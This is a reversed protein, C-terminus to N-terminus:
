GARLSLKGKISALSSPSLGTLALCATRPCVLAEGHRELQWRRQREAGGRGAKGAVETDGREFCPSMPRVEEM